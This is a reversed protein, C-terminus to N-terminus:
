ALLRVHSRGNSTVFRAKLYISFCWGVPQGLWFPHERFLLLEISSAVSCLSSRFRWSTNSTHIDDIPQPYGSPFWPRRWVDSCRVGISIPMGRCLMPGTHRGAARPVPPVCVNSSAIPRDTMSRTETKGRFFCTRSINTKGDSSNNSMASAGMAILAAPIASVESAPALRSFVIEHSGASSTQYTKEHADHHEECEHRQHFCNM